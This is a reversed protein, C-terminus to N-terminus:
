IERRFIEWSKEAQLELMEQGNKTVAGKNKGKQLFVTEAPNYILDYLLHQEIIADYMIAPFEQLHPHMGLPTTNIILLHEAMIPSSIQEYSLMNERHTRSVIQYSIQLKRLVYQVAKSAGGNGLVLAKTHYAKLLPKLSHEFGFVDTNSGHLRIVKNQRLVKICNVAQVDVVERNVESIFPMVSEKYPITVNLGVIDTRENLLPWLDDIQTLPFLEYRYGQINEKEFKTKFYQPSFSHALPFGILGITKM